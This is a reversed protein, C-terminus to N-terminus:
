SRDLMNNREVFGEVGDVEVTGYFADDTSMDDTPSMAKRDFGTRLSGLTVDRTAQTGSGLGGADKERGIRRVAQDEINMGPPLANLLQGSIGERTVTQAGPVRRGRRASGDSAWGGGEIGEPERPARAENKEQM